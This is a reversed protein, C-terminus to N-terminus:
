GRSPNQRNMKNLRSKSRDLRKGRAEAGSSRM